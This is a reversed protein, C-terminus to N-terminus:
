YFGDSCSAEQCYAAKASATKTTLAMWYFNQRRHAFGSPESIHKLERVEVWPQLEKAIEQQSYFRRIVPRGDEDIIYVGPEVQYALNKAVYEQIRWDSRSAVSFIAVGDPTLVRHIESFTQRRQGDSLSHLVRWCFVMDVSSTVLPVFSTTAVFARVNPYSKRVEQIAWESIDFAIISKGIRQLFRILRGSGCGLDLITDQCKDSLFGLIDETFQFPVTEDLTYERSLHRQRWSKATSQEFHETIL